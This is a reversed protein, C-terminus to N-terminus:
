KKVFQNLIISRFKEGREKYNAFMDMSACGPSLLVVDGSEAISAAKTVSEGFSDCVICHIDDNWLTALLNRSEGVLFIAKIKDKRTKISSFDMKKDLGGAILCINKDGGFQDLAALVAAPNTAKSDNVYIIGSEEAIVEQRHPSIHFASIMKKVAKQLKGKDLIASALAMAAMLNEINHLSSIETGALNLPEVLGRDFEIAQKKYVIDAEQDTASFTLPFQDPYKIRWIELLQHNIVHHRHEAINAFINLKTETYDALNAYRDMHDSEVNLLAASVPAFHEARELQFSSTEVVVAKLSDDDVVDSLPLGINGAAVTKIGGQQLIETTMETVTTKGNTGTIALMPVKIFRSAFDLESTIEAGGDIALQGLKSDDAIGPSMVLIDSDPLQEGSFNALINVQQNDVMERTFEDLGFSSNEDIGTVMWGKGAALKVAAMGSIGLGIISIHKNKMNAKAVFSVRAGKSPYGKQLM